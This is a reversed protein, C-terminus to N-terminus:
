YTRAGIGIGCEKALMAGRLRSARFAALKSLYPANEFLGQIEEILSVAIETCPKRL